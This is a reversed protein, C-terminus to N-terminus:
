LASRATGPTRTLSQLEAHHDQRIVHWMEPAPHGGSINALKGGRNVMEILPEGARIEARMRIDIADLM